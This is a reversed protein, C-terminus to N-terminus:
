SGPANTNRAANRMPRAARRTQLAAFRRCSARALSCKLKPMQIKPPLSPSAAALRLGSRPAAALAAAREALAKTRAQAIANAASSVRMPELLTIMTQMSPLPSQLRSTPRLRAVRSLRMLSRSAADTAGCVGLPSQEGVEGPAADQVLYKNECVSVQPPRRTREFSDYGEKLDLWFGHWPNGSHKALNEPTMRFPFVHVPVHTQGAFLAAEALGYVEAIVTNTMAFCGTSSCGGHVLIYSGSRAQARDFVNPFGLNLARPWRGVRHLQRRTITYFGEPTQKDGERLKPGLTGSWHCIPYTAFHVFASGKRMWLELESEAKFVRLFIEDGQKVGASALREALRSLDPTGPLPLAGEAARRQREIRDPAVDKLEVTFAHACTMPALLGLAVGALAGFVKRHAREL